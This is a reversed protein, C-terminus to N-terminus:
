GSLETHLPYFIFRRRCKGTNALMEVNGSVNGGVTNISASSLADIDADGLSDGLEGYPGGGKVITDADGETNDLRTFYAILIKQEEM